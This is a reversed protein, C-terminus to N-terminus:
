AAAGEGIWRVWAVGLQRARDALRRDATWLEAPLSEALALYLADYARAQNLREAWTYVSRCLSEDLPALEVRLAFLDNLSQQGREPTIRRSYLALRIGSVCEALWFAPAVLRTNAKYWLAFQPAPNYSALQPIVTWLALNGDIVVVSSSKLM